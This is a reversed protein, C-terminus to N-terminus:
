FSLPFSVSISRTAAGPAGWSDADEGRDHPHSGKEDIWGCCRDETLGRPSEGGAEM